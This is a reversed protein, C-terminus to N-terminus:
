AAKRHESVSANKLNVVLRKGGTLVTVFGKTVVVTSDTMVRISNPKCIIIPYRLDAAGSSAKKTKRAM